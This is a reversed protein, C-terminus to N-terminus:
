YTRHASNKRIREAADGSLTKPTKSTAAIRHTRWQQAPVGHQRSLLVTGM